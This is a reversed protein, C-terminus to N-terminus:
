TAFATSTAPTSCHRRRAFRRTAPRRGAVPRRPRRRGLQRPEPVRRVDDRRDRGDCQVTSRVADDSAGILYATIRKSNRGPGMRAVLVPRRRGTRGVGPVAWRPQVGGGQDAHHTGGAHLCIGKEVDWLKIRHDYDGSVAYRGDVTLGVAQVTAGHELHAVRRGTAVDWLKLSKDWSGSLLRRGDASACVATVDESHRTIAHVLRGTAVEWVLVQKRNDATALFRGDPTLCLANLSLTANGGDAWGGGVVAGTLPNVLQAAEDAQRTVVIQRVKKGTETDWIDVKGDYRGSVCLRGDVTIAVSSVTGGAQLVHRCKGSDIAWVRVTRDWGGSVALRGDGSVAVVSVTQEHGEFKAVCEGSELDLMQLGEYTSLVGAGATLFRRGDATFAVASVQGSSAGPWFGKWVGLLGSRGFQPYLRMWEALLEYRRCGPQARAAQLHGRAAAFDGRERAARGDTLTRDFEGRVQAATESSVVRCLVPPAPRAGAATVRWSRMPTGATVALAGDGALAAHMGMTREPQWSYLCRSAKMDWLRVFSDAGATLALTGDRSVSVANVEGICGSIAALLRGDGNWRKVVGDCGVSLLHAGARTIARVRGTHAPWSRKCEGTELDWIRILGDGGGVIGYRSNGSFCVAHISGEPSPIVRLCAGSAVDWLRVDAPAGEDLGGGSGSLIRRGDGSFCACRVWDAHGTFTRVRRGTKVDFLHLKKDWGGSLATQGDPSLAIANIAQHDTERDVFTRLPQGTTADWLKMMWNVASLVQRGDNSLYVLSTGHYSDERDVFERVLGRWRGLGSQALQLAREAPSGEPSKEFANQLHRVAAEADGREIHVLGLLYDGLWDDAAAATVAAELQRLLETDTIQGARWRLLGLNYTAERHHPAERVAQELHAAAAKQDGLDLLSVAYNCLSDVPLDAIKPEPRAYDRGTVDRYVARLAVSVEAMDRPRDAPDHRFCRRLLDVVGPPMPPLTPEPPGDRLYAEFVEAALQGGYRCPPAGVFLELVCVAWSWLDTHHTLPRRLEPRPQAAADAQEPSYYAPTGGKFPVGAWRAMGVPPYAQSYTLGFDSVKAVGEPTLLVNAPKVDQHVLGNEHAYALGWAFQIAVDLIREVAAGAGGAYLRGDHVWDALTGGEVYEAFVRPIGGLIRVYYCSVTHPYLGLGVWTESERRFQEAGGRRALVAPRPSKVALDIGWDRHRVRYVHGMAGGQHVQRVEYLGLIVDGTQWEEAVRDATTEPSPAAETTERVEFRTDCGACRASRGLDSPQVKYARGCKPCSVRVQSM